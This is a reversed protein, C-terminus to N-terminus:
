NGSSRKKMWMYGLVLSGVVVAAAAAYKLYHFSGYIVAEWGGHDRVWSCVTDSIYQLSWSVIRQFFDRMNQSLMLIALDSCFFFLVLIRERTMGRSFLTSLLDRFQEYSLEESVPVEQAKRKVEKRERTKAFDDALRRLDKGTRAWVPHTYFEAAPSNVGSSSMGNSSGCCPTAARAGVGNPINNQGRDDPMVYPTLSAPENLGERRIESTLFVQFLERGEVVVEDIQEPINLRLGVSSTRKRFKSEENPWPSAM